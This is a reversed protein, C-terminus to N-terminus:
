KFAVVHAGWSTSGTFTATIAGATTQVQYEQLSPFVSNGGATFGSGAGVGGNYSAYGVILDGNATTTVSNSAPAGSTAKNGADTQDVTIPGGTFSWEDVTIAPFFLSSGSDTCSITTGGGGTSLVHYCSFMFTNGGNSYQYNTIDSTFTGSDGSWTLTLPGGNANSLCVELLHGAGIASGLTCTATGVGGSNQNACSQIHTFTPGSAAGTNPQYHVYQGTLALLGALTFHATRLM